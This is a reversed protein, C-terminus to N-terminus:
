GEAVVVYGDVVVVVRPPGAVVDVVTLPVTPVEPVVVVVM